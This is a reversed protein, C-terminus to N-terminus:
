GCCAIYGSHKTDTKKFKDYEQSKGKEEKHVELSKQTGEQIYNYDEYDNEHRWM